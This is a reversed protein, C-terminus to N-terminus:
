ENKGGLINQLDDATLKYLSGDENEFALYFQSDDHDGHMILHVVKPSKRFISVFNERTAHMVVVRLKNPNAEM